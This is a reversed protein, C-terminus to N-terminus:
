DKPPELNSSNSIPKEQSNEKQTPTSNSTQPLVTTGAAQQPQDSSSSTTATTTVSSTVTTAVTPSSNGSQCISGGARQEAQEADDMAQEKELQKIQEVTGEEPIGEEEAKKRKAELFAILRFNSEYAAKRNALSIAAGYIIM